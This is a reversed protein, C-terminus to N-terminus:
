QQLGAVLLGLSDGLQTQHRRRARQDGDSRRTQVAAGPAIGAEGGYARRVPRVAGTGTFDGFRGQRVIVLPQHPILGLTEAFTRRRAVLGFSLLAEVSRPADLAAVASMAHCPSRSSELM